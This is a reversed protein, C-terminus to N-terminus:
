DNNGPMTAHLIIKARRHMVDEYEESDFYVVPEGNEDEETNDGLIGVLTGTLIQEDTAPVLPSNHLIDKDSQTFLAPRAWITAYRSNAQIVGDIEIYPYQRVHEEGLDYVYLTETM